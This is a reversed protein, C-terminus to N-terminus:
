HNFKRSTPVVDLIKEGRFSTERLGPELGFTGQPIPLVGMCKRCPILDLLDFDARFSTGDQAVVIAEGDEDLSMRILGGHPQIYTELAKVLGCTQCRPDILKEM